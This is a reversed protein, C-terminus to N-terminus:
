FGRSAPTVCLLRISVYFCMKCVDAPPHERRKSNGWGQMAKKLRKRHKEHHILLLIHGKPFVCSNASGSKLETVRSLLSQNQNFQWLHIIVGEDMLGNLSLMWCSPSPIQWLSRKGWINRSKGCSKKKGQLGWIVRHLAWPDLQM